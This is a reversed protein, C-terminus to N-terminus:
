ENLLEFERYIEWEKDQRLKLLLCISGLTISSFRGFMESFVRPLRDHDQGTYPNLLTFHPAYSDLVTPSYFKKIRQARHPQHVYRAPEQLYRQLYGSGTGPPNVRAVVLTHLMTLYDNPDYRLVVVEKRKGWFTM